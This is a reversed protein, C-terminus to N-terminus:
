YRSCCRTPYIPSSRIPVTKPPRSHRFPNPLPPTSKSTPFGRCPSPSAGTNIATPPLVDLFSPKANRTPARHPYAETNTTVRRRKLSSSPDRTELRALQGYRADPQPTVLLRSIAAPTAHRLHRDLCARLAGARRRASDDTSPQMSSM